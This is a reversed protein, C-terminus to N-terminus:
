LFPFESSTVLVRALVEESTELRVEGLLSILPKERGKHVFMGNLMVCRRILRERKTILRSMAANKVGHQPVDLCIGGIRIM